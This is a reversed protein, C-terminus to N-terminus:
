YHPILKNDNKRAQITSFCKTRKSLAVKELAPLGPKVESLKMAEILNKKKLEGFLDRGKKTRILVTNWGPPSGISGISIDASESTLDYCVECDERALHTIDKIPISLEEGSNTHVFFKGKSIDTKKVNEVNVNVQKCIKTFSEYSFSEMCFIGIRYLVQNLSPVNIDYIKSKLLAQMMCPVGVVALRQNSSNLQNFLKLTPNNVYKTGASKIIDEKKIIQVPEPRWLTNSMKAGFALDIMDNELLYYLCTSSIGGDQCVEAIEPVKTKASYAKYIFGLNPKPILQDTDSQILNLVDVPLFSRPCFYYCLGCRICKDEDITGFGNYVQLCNVPCIGVCLGCGSCNNSQYISKVSEYITKTNQPKSNFLEISIDRLNADKTENPTDSKPEYLYEFNLLHEYKLLELQSLTNPITIKHDKSYQLLSTLNPPNHTTLYNYLAYKSIEQKVMASLIGDYQAESYIGTELIEKKADIFARVRYSDLADAVNKLFDWTLNEPLVM